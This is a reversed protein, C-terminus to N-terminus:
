LFGSRRCVSRFLSIQRPQFKPQETEGQPFVRSPPDPVILSPGCDRKARPEEPLNEPLKSQWLADSKKQCAAAEAAEMRENDIAIQAAAKTWRDLHSYSPASLADIRRSM